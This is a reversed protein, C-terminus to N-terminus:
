TVPSVMEMNQKRPSLEPLPKGLLITTLVRLKGLLPCQNLDQHTHTHPLQKTTDLEKCGWVSYGVLGRQGHSEGPVSSHTAM